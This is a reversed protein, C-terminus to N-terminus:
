CEMLKIFNRAATWPASIIVSVYHYQGFFSYKKQKLRFKILKM